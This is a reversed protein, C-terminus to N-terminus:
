IPAASFKLVTGQASAWAAQELRNSLLTMRQIGVWYPAADQCERQLAELMDLGLVGVSEGACPADDLLRM